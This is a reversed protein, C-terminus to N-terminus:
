AYTLAVVNNNTTTTAVFSSAAALTTNCASDANPATTTATIATYTALALGRDIVVDSGDWKDALVSVLMMTEGLTGEWRLLIMVLEPWGAAWTWQAECVDM